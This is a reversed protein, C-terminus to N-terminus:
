EELFFPLPNITITDSCTIDSGTSVTVTVTTEKLVRHILVYNLISNGIVLPFFSTINGTPSYNVQSDLLGFNCDAGRGQILIMWIYPVWHSGVLNEPIVSIDCQYYNVTVAANGTADGNATDTATVTDTCSGTGTGPATYLGNSDVKGGCDGTVEWTYDGTLAIADCTTAASFAQSGGATLTATSPTVTVVPTCSVINVAKLANVKGYGYEDDRGAVGLDDATKILYERLQEKELYPNRAAVLAAVGSVLPASFSTGDVITIGGGLSTTYIFEGPASLEIEPGYNSFSARVNTGDTASVAMVEDLSAPFSVIPNNSNGAAAIILCGKNYAYDIAEEVLQSEEEFEISLNIVTVGYDSAYLLAEAVASAEFSDNGGPNIKLPLIKSEPAVGSIGLGNNQIGAIVGCVMTGHGNEDGPDDDGDGFDKGDALINDALDQHTLDVGSDVLAIIVDEGLSKDWADPAEINFLYWQQDFYPDDCESLFTGYYNPEVQVIDPDMKLSKMALSMRTGRDVRIRAWGLKGLEGKLKEPYTGPKYKVLLEGPVCPSARLEGGTLLILIVAIVVGVHHVTMRKVTASNVGDSSDIGLKLHCFSKTKKDNSFEFKSNTESKDEKM